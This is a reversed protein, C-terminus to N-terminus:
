PVLPVGILVRHGWLLMLAYLAIGVAVVAVDNFISTATATGLPGKANRRKVSIRDLVAWALLSGFLVLSALDGNALLHASAWIKVAALMPHGVATRIRSPVYAAVLLIMAPLMLTFAAHRTWVPPNWIVPNKGPMVQLKHYGIVILALGAFSLLAFGAKYGTEGFSRVLAGRLEVQTPVLHIALFLILGLALLLM